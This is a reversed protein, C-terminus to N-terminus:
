VFSYTGDKHLFVKRAGESDHVVLIRQVSMGPTAPRFPEFREMLANTETTEALQRKILAQAMNLADAEEMDGAGIGDCEYLEVEMHGTDLSMPYTRCIHPRHEYIRCAGNELFKCEGNNKKLLAWEFTHYEGNDDMDFCDNPRVVDLWELGTAGMIARIESPFITVTNDGYASKCCKGCRRCRFRSAAVKKAVPGANVSGYQELSNRIDKQPEGTMAEFV